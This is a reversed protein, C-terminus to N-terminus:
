FVASIQLRLCDHFSQHKRDLAWYRGDQIVTQERTLFLELLSKNDGTKETNGTESQRKNVKILVRKVGEDWRM